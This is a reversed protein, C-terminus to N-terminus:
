RLEVELGQPTKGVIDFEQDDDYKEVGGLYDIVCSMRGDRTDNYHEPPFPVHITNDTSRSM